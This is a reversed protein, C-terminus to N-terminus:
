APEAVAIVRPDSLNYTTCTVLILQERQVPQLWSTDNIPWRAYYKKIVYHLVKGDARDVEVSDGIAGAGNNLLPGFMGNQAHAYVMSRVGDGPPSLAPHIAAKYLPVNTGDGRILPLDIGLDPIKVRAKSDDTPVQFPAFSPVDIPSPTVSTPSPSALAVRAHAVPPRSRAAIFGGLGLLLVMVGTVGAANRWWIPTHSRFYSM